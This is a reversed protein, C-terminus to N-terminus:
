STQDSGRYRWYGRIRGFIRKSKLEVIQPWGGQEIHMVWGPTVVVGVHFDRESLSLDVVDGKIPATILVWNRKEEEAIRRVREIDRCTVYSGPDQVTVGCEERLFLCALGWCDCGNWGRGKDKWPIEQYRSYDIM